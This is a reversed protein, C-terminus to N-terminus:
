NRSVTSKSFPDKPEKHCFLKYVFSMLSIKENLGQLGYLYRKRSESKYLKFLKKYLGDLPLYILLKTTIFYPFRFKVVASFLYFLRMMKRKQPNELVSDTYIDRPTSVPGEDLFHNGVSYAALDTGLFPQYITVYTDLPKIRLNVCLTKTAMKIDEGPLLLMNFTCFPINYKRLMDATKYLSTNKYSRNLVKRRFTEDGTEIGLSIVKCGAKKINQTYKENIYEVHSLCSFPLGLKNSSISFEELWNPNMGFIDDVFDCDSIGYEEKLFKLESIVNQVSRVRLYTGKGSYIEKLAHNFCYTCNFPCGRGTIVRKCINNKFDPIHFYYSYIDRDPFVIEDIEKNVNRVVNKICEGSETKFSLNQIKYNIDERKLSKVLELMAVEGEGRCIVDIGEEYIIDPNYTPHPGGFVSFTSVREKIERSIALLEQWEGTFASFALVDPKYDAVSTYFDDEYAKIFVRCEAEEKLASAIYMSGLSCEPNTQIFAVKV